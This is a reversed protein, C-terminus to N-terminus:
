VRLNTGLHHEDPDTLRGELSLLLLYSITGRGRLVEHLAFEDVAGDPADDAEAGRALRAAVAGVDRPRLERVPAALLDWLLDELDVVRERDDLEGAPPAREADRGGELDHVPLSAHLGRAVLHSRPSQRGFMNSSIRRPLYGKDQRPSKAYVLGLALRELAHSDVEAANELFAM